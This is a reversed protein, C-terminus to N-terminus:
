GVGGCAEVSRILEQPVRSSFQCYGGHLYIDHRLRGCCTAVPGSQLGVIQVKTVGTAISLLVGGASQNVAIVQHCTAGATAPGMSPRLSCGSGGGCQFRLFFEKKLEKGSGEFQVGM